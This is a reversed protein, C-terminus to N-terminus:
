PIIDPSYTEDQAAPKLGGAANILDLTTWVGRAAYFFKIGQSRLCREVAAQTKYGTLSRLSAFEIVGPNM